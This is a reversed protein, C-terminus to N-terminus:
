YVQEYGFRFIGGTNTYTNTNSNDNIDNHTYLMQLEVIHGLAFTSTNTIWVSKGSHTGIKFNWRNERWSMKKKKQLLLVQNETQFVSVLGIPNGRKLEFRM